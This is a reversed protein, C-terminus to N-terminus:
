NRLRVATDFMLSTKDDDLTAGLLFSSGHQLTARTLTVSEEADPYNQKIQQTAARSVEQRLEKTFLEYDTKEGRKETLILYAKYKCVLYTEFIDRTIITEM